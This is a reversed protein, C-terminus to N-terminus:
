RSDESRTTQSADCLRRVWYCADTYGWPSSPHFMRFGCAILSNASAPNRRTDTIAWQFGIERALKLRVRILRKQLGKGRHEPLVGARCLYVTDSWQRSPRIGAFGVAEGGSWVIWWHGDFPRYPRDDPFCAGHLRRITEARAELRVRSVRYAM